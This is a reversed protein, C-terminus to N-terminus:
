NGIASQRNSEQLVDALDEFPFSLDLLGEITEVRFRDGVRAAVLYQVRKESKLIQKGDLEVHQGEIVVMELLELAEGQAEGNRFRAWSLKFDSALRVTEVRQSRAHRLMLLDCYDDRTIELARGGIAEVEKVQFKTSNGGANPLLLTILEAPDDSNALSKASFTWLPAAQSSGYCQSVAAAERSWSGAIGNAEDCVVLQLGARKGNLELTQPERSRGEPTKPIEFNLDSIKPETAPAFHFRLDM